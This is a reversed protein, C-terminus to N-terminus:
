AVIYRSSGQQRIATPELYERIVHYLVMIQLIIGVSFCDTKSMEPQYSRQQARESILKVVDQGSFDHYSAM